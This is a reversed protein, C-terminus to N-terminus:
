RDARDRPPDGEGAAAGAQQQALGALIVELAFAYFADNTAFRALPGALAVTLPYEREPLLALALQTRRTREEQEEPTGPRFRRAEFGAFGYNLAILTYFGSVAAEDGFGARKLVGLVTEGFRAAYPGTTPTALFYPIASPVRHLMARHARALTAFQAQWGDEENLDLPISGLVEDLVAAVLDGRGQFHRYLSMAGMGLEAAVARMTLADFGERGVLELAAAVIAARSLTGRSMRGGTPAAAQDVQKM